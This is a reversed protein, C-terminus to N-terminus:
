FSRFVFACAIPDEFNIELFCTTNASLFVFNCDFRGLQPKTSTSISTITYIFSLEVGLWDFVSKAFSRKM